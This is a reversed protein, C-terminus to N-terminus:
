ARGGRSGLQDADERRGGKRWVRGYGLGPVADAHARLVGRGPLASQASSTKTQALVDDVLEFPLYQTLQGFHGSAYVGAATTVSRTVTVSASESM